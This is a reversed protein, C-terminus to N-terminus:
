SEDDIENADGFSTGTIATLDAQNADCDTDVPDADVGYATGANPNQLNSQVFWCKGNPALSALVLSNGNVRNVSLVDAGNSAAAQFTLSPEADNLAAILGAQDTEIGDRSGPYQSTDTAAAAARATTVANRLATHSQRDQAAERQGLFTPIAIAALIGIIAVVVALEILSFGRNGTRKNFM